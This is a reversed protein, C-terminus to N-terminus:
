DHVPASRFVGASDPFQRCHGGPLIEHYANQNLFLLDGEELVIRTKQNIIHTTTGSLMYVLEVYNHRHSPFHVFRTHPRIEILRGKSLLLRSDIVFDRGTTYLEQHVETDGSLIRQEEETVRSLKELLEQRM